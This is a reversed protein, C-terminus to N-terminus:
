DGPTKMLEFLDVKYVVVKNIALIDKTITKEKLFLPTHINAHIKLFLKQYKNDAAKNATVFINM